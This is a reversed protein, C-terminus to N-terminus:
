KELGVEQCSYWVDIQSELDKSETPIPVIDLQESESEIELLRFEQDLEDEDIFVEPFLTEECIGTDEVMERIDMAMEEVSCSNMGSANRTGQLALRLATLSQVIQFDSKARELRLQQADLTAILTSCRDLEQIVIKRRRMHVLATHTMKNRQLNVANQKAVDADLELRIMRSHIAVKTESILSLAHDSQSQEFTLDGGEPFLNPNDKWEDEQCTHWVDDNQGAKSPVEQDLADEYITMGAPDPSIRVISVNSSSANGGGPNPSKRCYKFTAVLPNVQFFSVLRGVEPNRKRHRNYRPRIYILYNFLQEISQTHAGILLSLFCAHSLKNDSKSAIPVNWIIVSVGQAPCLTVSVLLVWFPISDPGMGTTQLLGRVVSLFIWTLFFSGVYLFAQIKVEDSASFAEERTSSRRLVVNDNDNATNSVATAPTESAEQQFLLWIEKKVLSWYISAMIVTIAVIIVWLPGYRCICDHM